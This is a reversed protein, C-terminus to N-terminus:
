GVILPWCVGIVAGIAIIAGSVAWIWPQVLAIRRDMRSTVRSFGRRLRDAGREAANANRADIPDPRRM